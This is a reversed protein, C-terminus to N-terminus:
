GHRWVGTATAAIAGGALVVILGVLWTKTITPKTM